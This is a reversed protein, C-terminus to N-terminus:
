RTRPAVLGSLDIARSDSYVDLTVTALAHGFMRQVAEVNAGASIALSPATHRMEHPTFGDQGFMEAAEDFWGHRFVETHVAPLAGGSLPM